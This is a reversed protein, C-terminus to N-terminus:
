SFTQGLIALRALYTMFAIGCLGVLVFFPGLTIDFLRTSGDQLVVVDSPDRLDYAVQVSGAGGPHSVVRSVGGGDTYRFTMPDDAPTAVVTVGRRRLLTEKFWPGVSVLGIWLPLAALVGFTPVFVAGAMATREHGVFAVTVALALVGGLYGLMVQGLRRRYRQLATTTVTRVVVLAGGDVDEVPDSLLANVGDAFVVAAAASVGEIRHRSPTTGAPARLEVTVSRAEARVRAVARFPIALKEGPRELVLGDPEPGLM